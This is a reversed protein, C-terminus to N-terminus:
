IVATQRGLEQAFVGQGEILLQVFRRGQDELSAFKESNRISVLNYVERCVCLLSGNLVVQFTLIALCEWLCQWLVSSASKLKLLISFQFESRFDNLRSLKEELDKKGWISKMAVKLKSLGRSKANEDLTLKNLKTSMERALVACRSALNELKQESATPQTTTSSGTASSLKLGDLSLSLKDVLMQMDSIDDTAGSASHSIDQIESILKCGVDIFGVINSALGIAVLAM